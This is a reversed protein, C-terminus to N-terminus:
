IANEKIYKLVDQKKNGTYIVEIFNRKEDVTWLEHQISYTGNINEIRKRKIIYPPKDEIYKKYEETIWQIIKNYREQTWKPNDSCYWVDFDYSGKQSNCSKCSPVCNRVDNYGEDDVHEKAFDEKRFGDKFKHIHNQIKMSCYACCYDGDEDKFYEKCSIWELKTIDHKRRKKNQEKVREPNEQEWKRLKEYFKEIHEAYYAKNYETMYTPNNLKWQKLYALYAERNDSQLKKTEQIDCKKCRPCLGDSKNKDNKYFYDTTCPFWEKCIPCKKELYGKTNRHYDNYKYRIGRPIKIM